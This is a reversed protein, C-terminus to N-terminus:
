KNIQIKKNEFNKEKKLQFNFFVNKFFNKFTKKTKQEREFKKKIKKLFNKIKSFILFKIKGEKQM